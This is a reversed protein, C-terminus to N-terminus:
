ANEEVVNGAHDVWRREGTSKGDADFREQEITPTHPVRLLHGTKGTNVWIGGCGPEQPKSDRPNTTM